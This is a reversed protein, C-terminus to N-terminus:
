PAVCFRIDFDFEVRLVVYRRTPTTIGRPYHYGEWGDVAARLDDNGFVFCGDNDVVFCDEKELVFAIRTTSSWAIRKTLSCAIGWGRLYCKTFVSSSLM